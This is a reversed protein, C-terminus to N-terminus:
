LFFTSQEVNQAYYTVKTPSQNSFIYYPNDIKSKTANVLNDVTNTYKVSTFKGM